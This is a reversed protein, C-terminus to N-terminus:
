KPWDNAVIAVMNNWSQGLIALWQTSGTNPGSGDGPNDCYVQYTGTGTNYSYGRVAYWHQITFGLRLGGLPINADIYSVITWYNALGNILFYHDYFSYGYRAAYTDFGPGFNWPMTGLTGCGMDVYLLCYAADLQFEIPYDYWHPFSSYGQAHYYSAISAGAAPGCGTSPRTCDNYSDYLGVNLTKYGTSLTASKEATLSRLEEPSLLGSKLDSFAFIDHTYLNIAVKKGNLDYISYFGEYEGSYFLFLFKASSISIATSSNNNLISQAEKLSPIAPPLDDGAQFFTYDYLQSGVMVEGLAKGDKEVAFMYSTVDGKLDCYAQPNVALANEWQPYTLGTFTVLNTQAVEQAAKVGTESDQNATVIGINPVLLLSLSLLLTIFVLITRKMIERRKIIHDGPTLRGIRRKPYPMVQGGAV